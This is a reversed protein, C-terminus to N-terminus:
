YNLISDRSANIITLVSIWERKNFTITYISKTRKPAFIRGIANRSANADSENVNWIQHPRYHQQNYLNTLDDYFISVMSPGLNRARNLNLAQPIRLVLTPHGQGFWKLWSRGRIRDKFPTAKLLTIKAVKMKLHIPTLPNQFKVMDNMYKILKEEADQYTYRQIGSKKRKIGDNYHDRQSKRFIKFAECCEKLTYGSDM